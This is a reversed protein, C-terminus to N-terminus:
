RKSVTARSPNSVSPISSSSRERCRLTSTMPHPSRGAKYEAYEKHRFTDEDADFCFLISDPQETKLMQLLMSAVGFVTNVQDGKSTKMTRPIAGIREIFSTIAM